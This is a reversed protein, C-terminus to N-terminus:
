LKSKMTQGVNHPLYKVMIAQMKTLELKEPPEMDNITTFEIGNFFKHSLLDSINSAGLRLEPQVVLLQRILDQAVPPITKPMEYLGKRIKGFTGEQTKGKFPVVGTFMQYLIVGFAWLDGSFGCQKTDIMEPSIYHETGVIDEEAVPTQMLSIKNPDNGSNNSKLIESSIGSLQSNASYSSINSIDSVARNKSSTSVNSSSAALVKATGFDCLQVQWKENLLINAPKLDRHVTNQSRLYSLGGLIQGAFYQAM